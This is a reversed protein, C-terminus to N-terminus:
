RESQPTRRPSGDPCARLERQPNKRVGAAALVSAHSARVGARKDTHSADEDGHAHREAQQEAEREADRALLVRRVHEPHGHECTDDPREDVRDDPAHQTPLEARVDDCQKRDGARERQTLVLGTEDDGQHQRATLQEVLAREAAGPALERREGAARRRDGVAALAAAEEVDRRALDCRAVREADERPLDDGDVARERAPM